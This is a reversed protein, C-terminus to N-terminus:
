ILSKLSKRVFEKCTFICNTFILLFLINCPLFIKKGWSHYVSIYQYPQKGRGYYLEVYCILNSSYLNEFFEFRRKHKGRPWTFNIDRMFVWKMRMLDWTPIIKRAVTFISKCFFVFYYYNYYHFLVFHFCYIIFLFIRAFCMYPNKKISLAQCSLNPTLSM